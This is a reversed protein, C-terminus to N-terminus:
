GLILQEARACVSLAPLTTRIDLPGTRRGSRVQELWLATQREYPDWTPFREEERGSATYRRWCGADYRSDFRILEDTFAAEVGAELGSTYGTPLCWSAFIAACFSGYRLFLTVSEGDPGLSAEVREPPGFLGTVYDVDHVALDYLIGGSRRRDALWNGDSWDPRPQRRWLTLTHLRERNARLRGAQATYADWSRLVQAVSLSCGTREATEAMAAADAPSLAAPKECLLYPVQGALAEVAARHLDSPLCIVALQPRAPLTRLEEPGSLYVAGEAGPLPLAGPGSRSIVAGIRVGARSLCASHVRAMRGTGWILANM